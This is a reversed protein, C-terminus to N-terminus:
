AKGRRTVAMSHESSIPDIRWRIGAAVQALRPDIAGGRGRFGDRLGRAIVRVLSWRPKAYLLVFVLHQLERLTDVALLSRNRKWYTKNILVRNRSRYYYRFPTSMSLTLIRGRYRVPRGWATVPYTRGLEHPLVLGPAVLCAFGLDRLRLCYEIDVLDIFLEERQMGVQRIVAGSLLSGSQIPERSHVFGHRDSGPLAQDIKAFTEPSVMGVRVGAGQARDWVAVLADVFGAPVASDQDFTVVLDRESLSAAVLGANIAAAIGANRAQVVVTAGLGRAEELIARYDPGSGDDVVVVEDVQPAITALNALLGGDPRFATVVAVLRRDSAAPTNKV